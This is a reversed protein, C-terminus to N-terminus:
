YSSFFSPFENKLHYPDHKKFINIREQDKITLNAYDINNGKLFYKTWEKPSELFQGIEHLAFENILGLKYAENFLSKDVFLPSIVAINNSKLSEFGEINRVAVTLTESFHVGTNKLIPIWREFYSSAQNIIDAVHLVKQNELAIEITNGNFDTVHYDGSKFLTIHPIGLKKAIPISFFWDRREGGSIFSPISNRNSMYFHSLAEISTNYGEDSEVISDILDFISSVKLAKSSNSGLIKNIKKLANDAEKEGAIYETNVYFPGPIGSTYWYVDDHKNKRVSFGNTSILRELLVQTANM